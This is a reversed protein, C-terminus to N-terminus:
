ALTLGSRDVEKLLESLKGAGPILLDAPAIEALPVLVFARVTMQPHPVQLRETVIRREGLLLLDLDLTRPGWLRGDRVRQHRDELGLLEDLLREAQLDTELMAVANIFDPQDQPGVPRSRYLSSHAVTQSEPLETLEQLARDIQEQPGQLNSGLGIYAIVRSENM